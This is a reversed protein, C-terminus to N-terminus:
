LFVIWLSTSVTNHLFYKVREYFSDNFIFSPILMEFNKQYINILEKIEGLTVERYDRKLNHDGFDTMPALGNGEDDFEFGKIDNELWQGKAFDIENEPKLPFENFDVIFWEDEGAGAYILKSNKHYLNRLAATWIIHKNYALGYRAWIVNSGSDITMSYGGSGLPLTDKLSILEDESFPFHISFLTLFFSKNEKLCNASFHNTNQQTM